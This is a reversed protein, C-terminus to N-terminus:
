PANDEPLVGQAPHEPLPVGAAAARADALYHGPPAFGAVTRLLRGGPDFLFAVPNARLPARLALADLTAEDARLLPLPSPSPWAALHAAVDAEPGTLLVALTGARSDRLDGALAAWEDLAAVCAPEDARFVFLWYPAGRLDATRFPAPDDDAHRFTMDDLRVAAVAAAHPDVADARRCADAFPMALAAACLLLAPLPLRPRDPKM